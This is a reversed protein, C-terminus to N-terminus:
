PKAETDKLKISGDLRSMVKTNNDLSIKEARNQIIRQTDGVNEFNGLAGMPDSTGLAAHLLPQLMLAAPSLELGGKLLGLGIDGAQTGRGVGVTQTELREGSIDKNKQQNELAVTLREARFSADTEIKRNYAEVSSSVRSGGAEAFKARGTAFAGAGKSGIVGAAIGASAGPIVTNRVKPDEIAVAYSVFEMLSMGEPEGYITWQIILAKIMTAAERVPINGQVVMELAASVEFPSIGATAATAFLPGLFGIESVAMNSQEATKVLFNQAGVEGGGGARTFTDDANLLGSVGKSIAGAPASSAGQEAFANKIVSKLQNMNMNPNASFVPAAVQAVEDISLNMEQAIERVTKKGAKGKLFEIEKLSKVIGIASKHTEVM